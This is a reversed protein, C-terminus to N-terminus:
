AKFIMKTRYYKNMMLWLIMPKKLEHYSIPSMVHLILSVNKFNSCVEYDLFAKIEPAKKPSTEQKIVKGAKTFILFKNKGHM